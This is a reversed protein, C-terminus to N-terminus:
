YFKRGQGEWWWWKGYAVPLGVISFNVDQSNARKVPFSIDGMEVGDQQEM